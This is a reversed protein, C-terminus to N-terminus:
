IKTDNLIKNLLYKNKTEYSPYPNCNDDAM